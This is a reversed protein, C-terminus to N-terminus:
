IEPHTPQSDSSEISKVSNRMLRINLGLLVGAAIGFLDAALNRSRGLGESHLFHSAEFSVSLLAPFFSLIINLTRRWTAFPIAILAAYTLFHIWRNSDYIAIVQYIWNDGPLCSVM